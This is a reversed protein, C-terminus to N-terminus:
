GCGHHRGETTGRGATADAGALKRRGRDAVAVAPAVQGLPCRDGRGKGGTPIITTTVPVTHVSVAAGSPSYRTEPFEERCDDRGFRFTEPTIPFAPV